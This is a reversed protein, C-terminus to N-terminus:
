TSSFFSVAESVSVVPCDREVNEQIQNVLSGAVSALMYLDVSQSGPQAKQRGTAPRRGPAPESLEWSAERMAGTVSLPPDDAIAPSM